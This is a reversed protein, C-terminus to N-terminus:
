VSREVSRNFPFNKTVQSIFRQSYWLPERLQILLHPFLHTYHPDRSTTDVGHSLIFALWHHPGTPVLLGETLVRITSLSFGSEPFSPRQGRHQGNGLSHITKPKKNTEKKLFFFTWLNGSNMSKIGASHFCIYASIQLLKWAQWLQRM